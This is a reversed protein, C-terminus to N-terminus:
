LLRPVDAGVVAAIVWAGLAELLKLPLRMRARCLSSADFVLGASVRMTALSVNARLIMTVCLLVTEVPGLTRQRFRHGSAQCLQLIREAPLLRHVALNVHRVARALDAMRPRRILTHKFLVM